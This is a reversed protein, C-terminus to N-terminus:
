GLPHAHIQLPPFTSNQGPPLIVAADRSGRRGGEAIPSRHAPPNLVANGSAIIAHTGIFLARRAFIVVQVPTTPNAAAALFWAFRALTKREPVNRKPPLPWIESDWSPNYVGPRLGDRGTWCAVDCPLQIPERTFSQGPSRAVRLHWPGSPQLVLAGPRHDQWGGYSMPQAPSEYDDPEPEVGSPPEVM